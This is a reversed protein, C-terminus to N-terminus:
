DYNRILVEDIEGRLSANSNVSRKAKVIEIRYDKYLNKIFDTASNSLLFKVGDTNLKDCVEKLRLQKQINFGGATYGTFNSSTSIPDYPPDLYVFSDKKVGKLASEFDGITFIINASNFYKSVAKLHIENVINPNKYSGFPSNFEGAQNVRFLGNFCTKNLYLLRSAKEVPSLQNYALHNRDLERIKYFYKSDNLHKKLDIILGDVHDKIVKYANILESNSDNVVASKPQLAFFLAGGGVFPEYYETFKDPIYKLLEPLLQRKGGVWKVVPIVLKNRKM